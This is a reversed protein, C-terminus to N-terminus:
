KNREKKMLWWSNCPMASFNGISLICVLKHCYQKQEWFDQFKFSTFTISFFQIFYHLWFKILTLLSLTIGTWLFSASYMKSSYYVSCPLRNKMWKLNDAGDKMFVTFLIDELHLLIRQTFDGPPAILLSDAPLALCALLRPNSGQTPFIGQLLFHCGVGINKGPSDWPFLLDTAVHWLTAFLRVPSFHSLGCAFASQWDM